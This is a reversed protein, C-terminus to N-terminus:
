LVTCCKFCSRQDQRDLELELFNTSNKNKLYKEENMRIKKKEEESLNM